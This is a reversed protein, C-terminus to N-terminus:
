WSPPSRFSRAVSSIWCYAAGLRRIVPSVDLLPASAARRDCLSAAVPDRAPDATSRRHLGGAARRARRRIRSQGHDRWSCKYAEVSLITKDEALVFPVGFNELAEIFVLLAGALISPLVLPLTVTRLM